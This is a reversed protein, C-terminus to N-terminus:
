EKDWGTFAWMILGIIGSVFLFIFLIGGIFQILFTGSQNDTRCYQKSELDRKTVEIWYKKNDEKIVKAMYKWSAYKGDSFYSTASEVEIPYCTIKEEYNFWQVICYGMATLLSCIIFLKIVKQLNKWNLKREM